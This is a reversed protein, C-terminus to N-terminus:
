LIDKRTGLHDIGGVSVSMADVYPLNDRGTFIKGNLYLTKLFM